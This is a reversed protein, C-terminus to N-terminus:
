SFYPHNLAQTADYRNEPEKALLRMLLDKALPDIPDYLISTFDIECARNKKM